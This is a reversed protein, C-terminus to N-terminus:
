SAGNGAAKAAKKAAAIAAVEALAENHRERAVYTHEILMEVLRILAAAEEPEVEVM